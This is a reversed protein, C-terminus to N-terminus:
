YNKDVSHSTLYTLYAIFLCIMKFNRNLPDQLGITRDRLLTHRRNHLFINRNRNYSFYKMKRAGYAAM